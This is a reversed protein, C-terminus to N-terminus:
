LFFPNDEFCIFIVYVSTYLHNCAISTFISGVCKGHYYGNENETIAECIVHNISSGIIVHNISSGPRMGSAAIGFLKLLIFYFIIRCIYRIVDPFSIEYLLRM